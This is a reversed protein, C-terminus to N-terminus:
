KGDPYTLISWQKVLSVQKEAGEAAMAYITIRDSIGKHRPYPFHCVSPGVQMELIDDWAMSFRKGEEYIPFTPTYQGGFCYMDMVLSDENIYWTSENYAGIENRIGRCNLTHELIEEDTNYWVISYFADMDITDFINQATQRMTEAHTLEPTVGTKECSILVTLTIALIILLHKM